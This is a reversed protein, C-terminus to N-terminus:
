KDGIAVPTAAIVRLVLEDGRDLKVDKTGSTVLSGDRPDTGEELNLDSLGIVGKSGLDLAPGRSLGPTPGAAAPPTAAEIRHAPTGPFHSAAPYPNESDISAPTGLRGNSFGGVGVAQVTLALPLEGGDKLEARDFVIGLASEPNKKSRRNARTVHGTVRAGEAILVKGRSLVALTVKAAIPQGVKAKRADITETLEAYIARGVGLAEGAAESSAASATDSQPSRAVGARLPSAPSAQGRAFHAVGAIALATAILAFAFQKNEPMVPSAM